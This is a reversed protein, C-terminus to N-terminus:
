RRFNHDYCRGWIALKQLMCFPNESLYLRICLPCIFTFFLIYFIIYICFAYFTRKNETMSLFEDKHSWRASNQMRAVL